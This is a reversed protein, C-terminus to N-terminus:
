SIGKFTVTFSYERNGDLIYEELPRPGCSNSGLGSMFGDVCVETLDSKPVEFHHKCASIEELTAHKAGFNFGDGSIEFGCGNGDTIKMM